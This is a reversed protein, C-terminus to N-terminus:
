QRISTMSTSFSIRKKPPRRWGRLDLTLRKKTSDYSCPILQLVAKRFYNHVVCYLAFNASFNIAQLFNCAVTIKSLDSNSDSSAIFNLSFHLIESPIICIFFIVVISILTINIRQQHHCPRSSSRLTEHRSQRSLHLSYILRINCYALIIIPLFVGFVAWVFTMTMNLNKDMIYTGIDLIYVSKGHSCNFSKVKWTWLFPILLITWVVCSAIIAVVTHCPRMYQRARMPYCVAAFRGIAMIVTFWTSTKILVNHFYNGYLTMYYSMTKETYYMSYDLSFTVAMTVICFLLDSIALAVLGITAGKEM